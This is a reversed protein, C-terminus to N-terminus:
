VSTEGYILLYFLPRFFSWPSSRGPFRLRFSVPLFHLLKRVRQEVLESPRKRWRVDEILEEEPAVARNTIDNEDPV